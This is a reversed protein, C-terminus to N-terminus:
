RKCVGFMVLFMGMLGLELLGGSANKHRQGTPHGKPYFGQGSVGVSRGQLLEFVEVKCSFATASPIPLPM